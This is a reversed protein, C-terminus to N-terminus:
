RSGARFRLDPDDTLTAYHVVTVNYGRRKLTPGDDGDNGPRGRIPLCYDNDTGLPEDCRARAGSVAAAALRLVGAAEATQELSFELARRPGEAM